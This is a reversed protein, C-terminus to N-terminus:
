LKYYDVQNGQILASNDEIDGLYMIFESINGSYNWTEGVGSGGIIIRPQGRVDTNRNLTVQVVGQSYTKIVGENKNYFGGVVEKETTIPKVIVIGSNATYFHYENRSGSIHMIAGVNNNSLNGTVRTGYLAMTRSVGIAGEESDVVLYYGVGDSDAWTAFNAQLNNNALRDFFISPKGNSMIVSGNEVILPQRSATAQIINVGNGSQDYWTTVFGNGSGVFSELASVDISKGKFGIDAEANDLSRRVRVVPGKYEKSLKRLSYAAAAGRVVDLILSDKSDAIVGALIAKKAKSRESM